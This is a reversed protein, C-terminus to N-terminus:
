RAKHRFRDALQATLTEAIEQGEQRWEIPSLQRAGRQVFRRAREAVLLAALNAEPDHALAFAPEGGTATRLEFLALEFPDVQEAAAMIEAVVRQALLRAKSRQPLHEPMAAFAALVLGRERQGHRPRAMAYAALIGRARIM